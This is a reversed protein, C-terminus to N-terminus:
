SREVPRIKASAEIQPAATQGLMNSAIAILRVAKRRNGVTMVRQDDVKVVYENGVKEISYSSTM